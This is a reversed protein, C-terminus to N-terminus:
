PASDPVKRDPTFRVHFSAGGDPPSELWAHGGHSEAIQQVIALGLGSGPLDRASPARWFREFVHPADLAAVGPGHDRVSVEGDRVLVDVRGGDPSWKGANDLLNTVALAIRSGVGRVVSPETKADFQVKPFHFEAQEVADSVIEDLRVSAIDGAPEEGRALDIIDSVLTSLETLQTDVDRRLRERAAADLEGERELVEINTRLSTIPTRLEHSADAVLRRQAGVSEDLAALMSNFSAALRALEDDGDAEVRRTLDGTATVDEVTETLRHVPRLTARSALFGLIGAVAIGLVAGGLLLWRLDGLVSTVEELSRAVQIATGPMWPATYVRVDSGGVRVESFYAGKAGAAVARADDTVPLPAGSTETAVRVRGGADVIQAFGGAAGLAPPPLVNLPSPRRDRIRDLQAVRDRLSSDLNSRLERRTADYAFVAVALAALAAAMAAALVLRTRLSM